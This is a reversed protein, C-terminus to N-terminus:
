IQYMPEKGLNKSFMNHWLCSFRIFRILMAELREGELKEGYRKEFVKKFNNTFEDLEQQNNKNM